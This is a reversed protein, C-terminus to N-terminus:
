TKGGAVPMRTLAAMCAERVQKTRGIAGRQLFASAEETAMNELGAVAALRMELVRKSALFPARLLTRGLFELAEPSRTRGLFSLIAEKEKLSRSAFDRGSADRLVQKVRSGGEGPDLKMATQIRIEEDPDKLFGALIRGAMEDRTRGLIHVVELKIDRNAFNIFGSLHPLGKREPIGSLITVIERALEPKAPDALAALLGPHPAGAAEMFGLIKHRAEGDPAVDFLDAALGLAPPGLLGFFGLLSEWDLGKKKDLLSKVAEVTKPSVTRKLFAELLAAKEPVGVLHRGLEHVKQIILVPVQFDGRQLRDFHYELLADLSAQCATPDKELFVIEVMLDIYEQEASITRNARVMTELSQLEDETLTPDMAAAPSREGPEDQVAAEDRDPPEPEIGGAKEEEAETDADRDSARRIQERDEGDLDIRGASFKSTDVRVEITERALDDPLATMDPHQSLSNQREALIRNELFEDPAYYQINPLDREWLAAVIDCDEAPKQAETKILELFDFVEPRDLGQYFFLIHLGDKFFFFPLSKIAVEDTFVPKGEFTFSFEEIGVQLKQHVALFATFKATLLDVFNTVTAHESPFIKMASVTNALYHLLDRVKEAREPDPLAGAGVPEGPRPNQPTDM